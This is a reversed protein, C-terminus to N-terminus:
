GGREARLERGPGPGFGDPSPKLGSWTAARHLEEIMSNVPVGQIRYGADETLLDFSRTEGRHSEIGSVSRGAITQGVRLERARAGNVRHMGCLDVAAGDTFTIHLFITEPSELYSQKQLVRVPKGGFGIVTDGPQIREVPQSGNPTDIRTHEPLCAFMMKMGAYPAAASALPLILGCGCFSAALVLMGALALVSALRNMKMRSEDNLSASLSNGREILVDDQL